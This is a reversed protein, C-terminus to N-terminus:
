RACAAAFAAFLRRDWDGPAEVLEEPHWQVGLLWWDADRAEVGEIVGDPARAVVRLADAPRAVAQHHISNATLQTTGLEAAMRSGEEIVVEHVRASRPAPGDHELAGPLCSPIDQVLTGGLAVNVVQIGRCIALVPVRRSRAAHVLAIEWADRRVHPPKTRPHPSEGFREPAVDEGGTLVLGRGVDLVRQAAALEGLPPTVLPVLGAATLANM